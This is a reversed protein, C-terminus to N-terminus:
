VLIWWASLSLELVLLALVFWLFPMIIDQTHMYIPAKQESKELADIMTYIKELEQSNQAEFFKGGTQHAFYELLEKNLPTQIPVMGYIPHNMYSGKDSGIGITYIKIGFKKALDQAVAPDIDERSPTGDTLAIIIKSTATSHRLRTAAMAIATSLVTGDANICGIELNHIINTLLHKDLTLPCRSAAAIGFIVLGIPDNVRKNIFKTAETKAIEFRSRPDQLDDFLAMSGSADLVLMIDIGETPVIIKEDFFQLRATVIALAIVMCLRVFFLLARLSFSTRVKQKKQLLSVLPYIYIPYRYYFWRWFAILLIIGLAIILFQTYAFGLMM